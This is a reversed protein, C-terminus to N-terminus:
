RHASHLPPLGRRARRHDQQGSRRGPGANGAQDLAWNHPVSDPNVFTLEIPEGAKAEFSRLKYSLNKGVEITVTRAGKIKDRWPNPRPPHELAVMDALIPHAAITKPVPRYGPFGTFPPALKHITAFLDIPQARAPGCMCTFNISPSFTPSRSSCRAGTPWSTPRGSRWCTTAPSVGPPTAFARALRLAASYHYNWAQAFHRNAQNPSSRKSRCRFRSCLATKMPTVRWRFSSRARGHLARASLLRRGAHVHGLRDNGHCLATRGQSQVTRPSRGLPLRRAAPRGGGPASRRGQRAPRSFAHGNWLLFPDVPGALPGFRDDPVTVQGGSSNDLGRPLYVLPLDPAQGDKPGPYGYHGGPRVECIMSAPVWEGESNPVTLTGDPALGLGDPNRFGTAM